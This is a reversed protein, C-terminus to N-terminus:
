SAPGTKAIPQLLHLRYHSRRDTLTPDNPDGLDDMLVVTEPATLRHVQPPDAPDQRRLWIAARELYVGHLSSNTLITEGGPVM